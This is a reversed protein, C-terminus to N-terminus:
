IGGRADFRLDLRAYAPLMVKRAAKRRVIRPTGGVALLAQIFARIEQQALAFGLCYHHGAGYWLHRVRPDHDRDPDYRAPHPYFGSAKLVNYTFIVARSGQRFRHGEIEADDLVARVMVPSPIICRLGEDIVRDLRTPDDRLRKWEGSDVLLAVLRPVATSITQTGTMFLAALVGQVEEFRLGAARLRPILAGPRGTDDGDFSARAHAVLREYPDRIAAVKEPTLPRPDLTAYAILRESLTVVRRYTAVEEGPPPVVGLIHCMMQGTADRVVQAIDVTEGRRLRATLDCLPRSWVADTLRQASAPTFLDRLRRRLDKHEAGDMNLIAYPGMVQTILAGFGGPGGKSFHAEDLLIARAVLPDNVLNGLKPVAVVPGLRRSVEAVAWLGPHSALYLATEHFAARRAPALLTV